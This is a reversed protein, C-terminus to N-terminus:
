ILVLCVHVRSTESMSFRSPWAPNWSEPRPAGSLPPQQNADSDPMHACMNLNYTAFLHTTLLLFHDPVTELPATEKHTGM